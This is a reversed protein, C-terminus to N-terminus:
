DVTDNAFLVIGGLCGGAVKVVLPICCTRSKNLLTSGGGRFAGILNSGVRGYCLLPHRAGRSCKGGAGSGGSRDHISNQLAVLHGTINEDKLRLDRFTSNTCVRRYRHHRASPLDAGLVFVAPCM